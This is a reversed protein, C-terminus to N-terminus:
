GLQKSSFFDDLDFLDKIQDKIQYRKKYIDIRCVKSILNDYIVRTVLKRFISLFRSYFLYNSGIMSANRTTIHM